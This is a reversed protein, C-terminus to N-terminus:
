RYVDPRSTRRAPRRPHFTAAWPRLYLTISSDRNIGNIRRGNAPVRWRRREVWRRETAKLRRSYLARRERYIRRPRAAETSLVFVMGPRVADPRDVAEGPTIRRFGKSGALNLRGACRPRLRRNLVCTGGLSESLVLLCVGRVM